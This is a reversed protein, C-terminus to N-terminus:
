RPPWPVRTETGTVEVTVSGNEDHAGAGHPKRVTIAELPEATLFTYRSRDRYTFEAFVRRGGARGEVHPGNAVARPSDESDPDTGSELIVTHAYLARDPTPAGLHYPEEPELVFDWSAITGVGAVELTARTPGCVLGDARVVSEDRPLSRRQLNEKAEEPELDSRVINLRFHQRSDAPLNSTDLTVSSTRYVVLEADLTGSPFTPAADMGGLLRWTRSDVQLWCEGDPYDGLLEFRGDEDSQLRTTVGRWSAGDPLRLGAKLDLPMGVGRSDVVRGALVLRPRRLDLVGLDVVQQGPEIEVVGQWSNEPANVAEIRQMSRFVRESPSKLWPAFVAFEEGEELDLTAVTIPDQPSITESAGIQPPTLAVIRLPGGALGLAQGKLVVGTPFEELALSTSTSGGASTPGRLEGQALPGLSWPARLYAKLELFLGLGIGDFRVPVEAHGAPVPLQRSGGLARQRGAPVLDVTLGAPLPGEQSRVVIVVSGTSPQLLTVRTPPAVGDLSVDAYSREAGEQKESLLLDLSLRATASGAALDELLEAPLDDGPTPVFAEGSADTRVGPGATHVIRKRIRGAVFTTLVTAGPVPAGTVDVVRVLWGVRADQPAEERVEILDATPELGLESALSPASAELPAATPAGQSPWLFLLLGLLVTLLLLARM